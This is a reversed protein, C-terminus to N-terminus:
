IHFIDIFLLLNHYLITICFPRIVEMFYAPANTLGFSMVKFEYHGYKTSFTTKEIDEERVRIQNYGSQLDIKLFVKAGRLQDFLDEIRPMPYKNKITVANLARYDFCMRLSLDKKETFLVPAGGLHCV